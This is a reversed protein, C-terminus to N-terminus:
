VDKRENETITNVSDIIMKSIGMPSTHAMHEAFREIMFDKTIDKGPAKVGLDTEEVTDFMSKLLIKMFEAEMDEATKRLKKQDLKKATKQDIKPVDTKNILYQDDIKM